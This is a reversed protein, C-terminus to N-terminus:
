KRQQWYYLKSPTWLSIHPVKHVNLTVQDLERRGPVFKHCMFNHLELHTIVGM